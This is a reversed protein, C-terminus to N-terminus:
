LWNGSRYEGTIPTAKGLVNPILPHPIKIFVHNQDHHGDSVQECIECLDYKRCLRFYASSVTHQVYSGTIHM